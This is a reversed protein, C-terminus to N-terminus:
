RDTPLGDQGMLSPAKCRDGREARQAGVRCYTDIESGSSRVERVVGGDLEGGGCGNSVGLARLM